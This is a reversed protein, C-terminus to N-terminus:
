SSSAPAAQLLRSYYFRTSTMERKTVKWGAQNLAAEVAEEKHLYARTAQLCYSSHTCDRMLAEKALLTNKASALKERQPHRVRPMGACAM